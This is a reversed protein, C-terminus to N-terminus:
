RGAEEYLKNIYKFYSEIGGVKGACIIALARKEADQHIQTLPFNRYVYGVRDKYEDMIKNITPHFRICFPCEADAYEILFVNDKKGQVFENDSIPKGKFLEKSTTGSLANDIASKIFTYDRAGEIRSAVYYNNDKKVVVFTTPTGSVGATAGDNISDNVEKAIDKDGLCTQWSSMKLKIEKAVKEVSFPEGAIQVQSSYVIYGYGLHSLGLIIAGVIIANATSENLKTLYRKM